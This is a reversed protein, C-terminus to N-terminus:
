RCPDLAERERRAQWSTHRQRPRRRSGLAARGSPKGFDTSGPRCFSCALIKNCDKPTLCLCSTQHYPYFSAGAGWATFGARLGGWLKELRLWDKTVSPFVSLNAGYNFGLLVSIVVFLEWNSIYGLSFMLLAQFVFVLLMTRMPCMKDSLSGAAIRGSANGVALLAVLLFGAKIEAQVQCIKALKGIIMLGAGGASIFMSWLLYFQPTRLMELPGLETREQKAALVTIEIRQAIDVQSTSGTVRSPGRLVQALLTVSILFPVGFIFLSKSVGYANLLSEALPAIYVFALGFGAVVMGAILGTMHPPFWKVAPPTASAYGLGIGTGALVGFGLVLGRLSTFRSSIMLGIGVLVGGATAVWRPGVRDQMRGAPVMMLALVLCAVSYPLARHAENWGWAELIHKSSVSLSCLVGSAM